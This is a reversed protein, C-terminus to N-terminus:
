KSKKRLDLTNLFNVTQFLTTTKSQQYRSISTKIEIIFSLYFLNKFLMKFKGVNM